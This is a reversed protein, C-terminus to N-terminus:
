MPSIEWLNVMESQDAADIQVARWLDAAGYCMSRVKCPAGRWNCSMLNRWVPSMHGALFTLPLMFESEREICDLPAYVVFRKSVLSEGRLVYDVGDEVAKDLGYDNGQEAASAYVSQLYPVLRGEVVSDCTPNAEQDYKEYGVSRVVLRAFRGCEPVEFLWVSEVHVELTEKPVVPEMSPLAKLLSATNPETPVSGYDKVMDALLERPFLKNENLSLLWERYGGFMYVVSGQCMTSIHSCLLTPKEIASVSTWRLQYKSLAELRPQNFVYVYQFWLGLEEISQLLLKEDDSLAASGGRSACACDRASVTGTGANATVPASIRQVDRYMSDMKDLWMARKENWPLWDCYRSVASECLVVLQLILAMGSAVTALDGCCCKLSDLTMSDILQALRNNEVSIMEAPNTGCLNRGNSACVNCPQGGVAADTAKGRRTDGESKVHMMLDNHSPSESKMIGYRLLTTSSMEIIRSSFSKVGQSLSILLHGYPTPARWAEVSGNPQLSLNNFEPELQILKAQLGRENSTLPSLRDIFMRIDWPTDMVGWSLRPPITTLYNLYDIVTDFSTPQREFFERSRRLRPKAMKPKRGKPKRRKIMQTGVEEKVEGVNKPDSSAEQPNPATNSDDPAKKNDDQPESTSSEEAAKRKNKGTGADVAFIRDEMLQKAYDAIRFKFKEPGFSAGRRQKSRISTRQATFRASPLTRVFIRCGLDGGFYYYDNYFRDRGLHVNRQVYREELEALEKMIEKPKKRKVTDITAVLAVASDNERSNNTVGGEPNQTDGELKVDGASAHKGPAIAGPEEKIAVGDVDNSELKVQVNSSLNSVNESETKVDPHSKANSLQQSSAAETNKKTKYRGRRKVGVKGEATILAGGKESKVAAGVNNTLAMTEYDPSRDVDEAKGDASAAVNPAQTVDSKVLAAKLSFFEDNRQDIFRKADPSYALLEGMWRLLTLRDRVELEFISCVRLKELIVKVAEISVTGKFMHKVRNIDPYWQIEFEYYPSYRQAGLGRRRGVRTGEEAEAEGEGEAEDEEEEDDVDDESNNTAQLSANSKATTSEGKTGEPAEKDIPEDDEEDEDDDEMATSRADGFSRSNLRYLYRRRCSYVAYFLYLRLLCPWTFETLMMPNLAVKASLLSISEKFGFGLVPETKNPTVPDVTFLALSSARLRDNLANILDSRERAEPLVETQWVLMKKSFTPLVEFVDSPYIVRYDAGERCHSSLLDMPVGELRSNLSIVVGEPLYEYDVNTYVYSKTAALLREVKKFRRNWRATNIYPIPHEPEPIIHRFRGRYLCGGHTSIFYSLTDYDPMSAKIDREQADKKKDSLPSLLRMMRVKYEYSEYRSFDNLSRMLGVYLDNVRKDLRQFKPLWDQDKAVLSCLCQPPEFRFTSPEIPKYVDVSTTYLLSKELEAFTFRPLMPQATSPSASFQRCVNAIDLIDDAGYFRLLRLPIDRPYYRADNLEVCCDNLLALPQRGAEDGSVDSSTNYCTYAFDDPLALANCQKETDILMQQRHRMAEDPEPAAVSRKVVPKPEEHVILQVEESDALKSNRKIIRGSVKSKIEVPPPAQVVVKIADMAAATKSAKSERYVRTASGDKHTKSAKASKPQPGIKPMKHARVVESTAILAKTDVLPPRAPIPMNRQRKQQLMEPDDYLQQFTSLYKETLRATSMFEPVVFSQDFFVFPRHEKLVAMLDCLLLGITNAGTNAAALDPPAYMTGLGAPEMNIDSVLMSNGMVKSAGLMTYPADLGAYLDRADLPPYAQLSNISGISSPANMEQTQEYSSEKNRSQFLHVHLCDRYIMEIVKILDAETLGQVHMAENWTTLASGGEAMIEAMIDHLRRNRDRQYEKTIRTSLNYYLMFSVYYNVYRQAPKDLRYYVDHESIVYLAPVDSPKCGYDIFFDLIRARVGIVKCKRRQRGRSSDHSSLDENLTPHMLASLESATYLSNVLKLKGMLWLGMGFRSLHDLPTIKDCAPSYIIFDDVYRIVTGDEQFFTFASPIAAEGHYREHSRTLVAENCSSVGYTCDIDEGSQLHEAQSGLSSGGTEYMTTVATETSPDYTCYRNVGVQQLLMSRWALGSRLRQTISDVAASESFTAGGAAHAM